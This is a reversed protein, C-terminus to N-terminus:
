GPVSDMHAGAITAPRALGRGCDRKQHQRERRDDPNSSQEQQFAGQM